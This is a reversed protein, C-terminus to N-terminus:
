VTAGGCSSGQGATCAYCHGATVIRRRGLVADFAGIHAPAGFGVPMELMQNFDCDYLTGDWGVSVMTRCMLGRAADPNFADQLRLMYQDYHGNQRLMALFRSIPMNTMTFLSHFEIGHRSRLERRYDIELAAQPPPLSAGIPNYVLNLRLNSGPMGYGAANLLRLAQISKAYVGAGRQTDVNSELYCPLSAVIEVEHRALFAILDSQSPLLLVTLNCRDIVKRGLARAQQVLYRFQACLEPAGGTIDVVPIPYRQLVDLCLDATQRSMTERRHPGADVHCHECRQNCVKGVNIQLVEIASAHLAGGLTDEFLRLESTSVM